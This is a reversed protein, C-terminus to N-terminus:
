LPGPPQSGSTEATRIDDCATRAAIFMCIAGPLFTLAGAMLAYRLGLPGYRSAFLDSLSGVALPGLGQAILNLFLLYIAAGTARLHPGCLSQILAYMASTHLCSVFTAPAVLALATRYDNAALYSLSLPCALIFTLGIMIFPAKNDRRFLWDALLGGSFIGAMTAPGVVAAYTTGVSSSTLQFQRMLYAPVFANTGFAGILGISVALCSWLFARRRLLVRFAQTFRVSGAEARGARPPEPVTLFLVAALLLGPAAAAYYAARWGYHEGIYGGVALASIHGVAASIGIIGFARGRWDTRVTEAIIAHTTPSGGAEGIGVGFRALLMHWFNSAAGSIGTMISWFGVSLALVNVRRGGDAIRAIPVSALAYVLAFSMGILAGIQGDSLDLDSKIDNVLISTLNRDYYNMVTIASMIGVVYIANSKQGNEDSM